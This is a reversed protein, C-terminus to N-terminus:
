DNWINQTHECRWVRTSGLLFPAPLGQSKVLAEEGRGLSTTHQPFSQTM